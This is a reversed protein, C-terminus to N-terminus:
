RLYYRVWLLAGIAYLGVVIPLVFEWVARLYSTKRALTGWWWLQRRIKKQTREAPKDQPDDPIRVFAHEHQLHRLLAEDHASRWALFDAAAYIVFTLTFYVVIIVLIVLLARQDAREFEIGLASIKSPILGTHAVAVSLMSVGLLIRREARTVDRLVEGVQLSHLKGLISRQDTQNSDFKDTMSILLGVGPMVRAGNLM